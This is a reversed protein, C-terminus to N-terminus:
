LGLRPQAGIVRVKGANHTDITITINTVSRCQKGGVSPTTAFTNNGTVAAGGAHALQFTATINGGGVSEAVVVEQDVLGSNVVLVSGAVIGTTSALAVTQRSMATVAPTITTSVAATPNNANLTVSWTTTSAGADDVGAILIVPHAGGAAFDTTVEVVPVAESYLSSNVGTGATFGAGVARDGMGHASVGATLTPHLGPSMVGVAPLNAKILALYLAAFQPTVLSRFKAGGDGGNYWQLFTAIDIISVDVGGGRLTCHNALSQIGTRLYAAMAEANAKAFVANADTIMDSEQEFDDLGIVTNQFNLAEQQLSGAVPAANNAVTDANALIRKWQYGLYDTLKLMNATSILSM